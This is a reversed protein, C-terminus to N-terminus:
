QVNYSSSLKWKQERLAQELKLNIVTADPGARMIPRPTKAQSISSSDRRRMLLPHGRWEHEVASVKGQFESFTLCDIAARARRGTIEFM